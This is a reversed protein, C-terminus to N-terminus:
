TFQFHRYIIYENRIRVEKINFAQHTNFKDQALFNKLIGSQFPDDEIVLIDGRREDGKEEEFVDRNKLIKEICALLTATKVPKIILENSKLDRLCRRRVQESPDGLDNKTLMQKGTMVLIPTKKLNFQNEYERIKFIMTEGNMVDMRLDTIILDFQSEKFIDLGEKGNKALTIIIGQGELLTKMTM